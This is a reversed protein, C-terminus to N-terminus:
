VGSGQMSATLKELNLNWLFCMVETDGQEWTTQTPFFAGFDLLSNAYATGVYPDFTERCRNITWEQVATDGPYTDSPM